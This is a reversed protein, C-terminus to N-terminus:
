RERELGGSQLQGRRRRQRGRLRRLGHRQRFAFSSVYIATEQRRFHFDRPFPSPLFPCDEEAPFTFAREPSLLLLLLPFFPLQRKHAWSAIGVWKDFRRYTINRLSAALFAGDLPDRGQKLAAKLAQAYLMAADYLYAAERRLELMRVAAPGSIPRNLPSLPSSIESLLDAFPGRIMHAKVRETFNRYSWESTELPPSMMICLYHKM